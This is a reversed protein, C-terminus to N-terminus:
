ILVIYLITLASINTNTSFGQLKYNFIYLAVIIALCKNTKNTKVFINTLVTFHQTSLASLFIQKNQTCFYALLCNTVPGPSLLSPGLLNTSLFFFQCLSM